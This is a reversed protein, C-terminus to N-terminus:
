QVPQLEVLNMGCVPCQGPEETIVHAHEPMPCTYYTRDPDFPETKKVLTMGCEPCSGPHDLRVFSHSEMPCTYYSLQGDEVQGFPVGAAGAEPHPQGMEHEHRHSEEPSSPEGSKEHEEMQHGTEPRDEQEGAAPAPTAAGKRVALMKAISEQLKSESDLMFQASTVVTEGETLGKLVQYYGDGSELGITVDRPAYRGEGLSVFVLNREGSFLVAEMPVVLADEIPSTHIDVNAYMGPKLEQGPNPFSLRVKVTRTKEELYPYVYQVTGRYVKGPAYSLTMIAEQGEAVWPTEYEYVDAYVWIESLDAIVYLRMGPKIEMGDLAHKEVVIGNFPSILALTKRVKGTRGLEEIQADSIDFYELRRRTSALIGKLNSRTAPSVSSGVTKLNNLADLYEEQASVLQPSYIEVLVDGKKVVEGTTNVYTKEIWGSFKTHVHAVRAEDYDIRGITRITRTLPRREVPATRVGINQEVIPSIKVTAGFAEEGEYVPILDMGMPSKGPKPSIYTPDMPARWYLIKREGKEAAGSEPTAAASTAGGSPAGGLPTLKMGCIPCNGPGEQIVNPHMGCTYLQKEAQVTEAAGSEPAKGDRSCGVFLGGLLALMIVTAPKLVSIQNM